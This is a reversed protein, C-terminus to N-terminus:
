KYAYVNCYEGIINITSSQDPLMGLGDQCVVLTDNLDITASVTATSIINSGTVVETVNFQFPPDSIVGGRDGPVLSRPMDLGSAEWRHSLSSITCTFTVNMGPCPREVSSQLQAGSVSFSCHQESFLVNINIQMGM